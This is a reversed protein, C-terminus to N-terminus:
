HNHSQVQIHITIHIYRVIRVIIKVFEMHKVIGNVLEM